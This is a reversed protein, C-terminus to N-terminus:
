SKRNLLLAPLEALPKYGAGLAALLGRAKLAVAEARRRTGDIGYRGVMTQRGDDSQQRADLLDDTIQFLLGLQVGAEWLREQRRVGAGAVAAGAAMAAAIFDATKKRQLEALRRASAGSNGAIDMAQGGTMGSPGIARSIIAVARIKRTAPAPSRAFTEFAFALLGDAALIATGEDFRRHLSPLGRRFDDNDMSPLDDHVLSFAHIMEIGSCFPLVHSDSRGGSARFSWLALVPRIRKGPGLAAYRMALALRAPVERGFRLIRDLERDVLRRDAALASKIDQTKTM